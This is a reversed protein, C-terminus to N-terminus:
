VADGNEKYVINYAESKDLKVPETQLFTKIELDVRVNKNCDLCRYSNDENLRIPIFNDIAKDCPCKVNCGQKSYERLIDIQNKENIVNLITNWVNYLIVQLFSLCFMWGLFSKPDNAFLYSITGSTIFLIIVARLM